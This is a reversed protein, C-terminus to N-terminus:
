KFRRLQHYSGLIGRQLWGPMPIGLFIDRAIEARNQQSLHALSLAEPELRRPMHQQPALWAGSLAPPLYDQIITDETEVKKGLEPSEKCSSDIDQLLTVRPVGISAGCAALVALAKIDLYPLATNLKSDPVTNRFLFRGHCFPKGGPLGFLPLPKQVLYHTREKEQQMQVLSSYAAICVPNQELAAVLTRVHGAFLHERPQLVLVYAGASLNLLYDYLVKGFPLNRKVPSGNLKHRFPTPVIRCAPLIESVLKHVRGGFKEMVDPEVLLVPQIAPYDQTAISQLMTQLADKDFQPLPLLAQVPAGAVPTLTQLTQRREPLRTYLEALSRDLTFKEKFIAQAAQAKELAQQPKERVWRVHDRVQQATEDAPLTCDVYLLTDGFHRQAFPNDDCVIVAGAAISEFLRSSMLESDKHAASSLVLSIGARAIERVMSVGDFPIQGQYSKYGDWVKVGMLKEPGYIRLEGTKDLLDLLEQHRSAKKGLREWNIGAYFVKKDGLTPAMIPEALSHFMTFQIDDRTPDHALLRRVHDDAAASGCSLFDDHSLINDTLRRYAGELYDHYFQLPNWLAVFSFIDYAKPTEFHLHIVFDLDKQTMRVNPSDLLRGDPTVEYCTLGLKTAAVKLRAIVEDEAVKIGPWLKVVGFKGILGSPLTFSPATM